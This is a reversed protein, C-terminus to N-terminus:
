VLSIEEKGDPPMRGKEYTNIWVRTPKAMYMRRLSPAMFEEKPSAPKNKKEYFVKIAQELETGMLEKAEAEIYVGQSDSDPSSDYIVIFVHHNAAINKSHLADVSSNWIFNYQDDHVAFLPSNWPKGEATVSAVTIFPIKEIVAKAKETSNM